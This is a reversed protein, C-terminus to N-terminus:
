KNIKVVKSMVKNYEYDARDLVSSVFIMKNRLSILERELGTGKYTDLSLYKNIDDVAERMTNRLHWYIGVKDISGVTKRGICRPVYNYHLDYGDGTEHSLKCDLDLGMFRYSKNLLDIVYNMVPVTARGRIVADPIEGVDIGDYIYRASCKLKSM